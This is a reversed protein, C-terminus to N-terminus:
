KGLSMKRESFKWLNHWENHCLNHDCDARIAINLRLSHNGEWSSHGLSMKRQLVTLFQSVCQSWLRNSNSLKTEIEFSRNGSCHLTKFIELHFWLREIRACSNVYNCTPWFYKLINWFINWSKEFFIWIEWDKCLIQCLQLSAPQFINWSLVSLIELNNLLYKLITWCINWSSVKFIRACSNVYHLQGFINWSLVSFIEFIKKFIELHSRSYGQVPISMIAPEGFINWSLASLIEFIKNFIELHSRSYGQVPISM